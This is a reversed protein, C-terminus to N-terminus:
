TFPRFPIVSGRLRNEGAGRIYNEFHGHFSIYQMSRESKGTIISRFFSQEITIITQCIPFHLFIKRGTLLLPSKMHQKFLRSFYLSDEYGVSRAIQAIPLDTNQLLECAKRIRYDLLYEQPSFGTVKKFLRYLYTRELGLSDAIEQISFSHDYNNEIYQLSDEVYSRKKAEM